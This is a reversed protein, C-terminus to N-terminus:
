WAAELGLSLGDLGVVGGRDWCGGLQRPGLALGTVCYYQYGAQLWLAQALRLRVLVSIEFLGALDSGSHSGNFPIITAGTASDTGQQTYFNDMLGVKGEIGAQSRVSGWLWQLGTQLGVLNNQTKYALTESNDPDIDSGSLAFDDSLHFYRVGWLWNVNWFPNYTNLKIRQNIEASDVRSTYTYGLTNNM